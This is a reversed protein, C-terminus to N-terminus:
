VYYNTMIKLALSYVLAARISLNLGTPQEATSKVLVTDHDSLLKVSLADAEWGEFQEGARQTTIKM